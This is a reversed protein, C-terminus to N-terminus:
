TWEEQARRERRPAHRLWASAGRVRHWSCPHVGTSRSAAERDRSSWVSRGQPSIERPPPSWWQWCSGPCSRAPGVLGPCQLASNGVM